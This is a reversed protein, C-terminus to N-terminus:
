LCLEAAKEIRGWRDEQVKRLSTFATRCPVIGSAIIKGTTPDTLTYSAVLGGSIRMPDAGLYTWLNKTTVSSGGSFDAHVTAVVANGEFLATYRAVKYLPMTNDKAMTTLQKVLTQALKIEEQLAKWLAERAPPLTKGDPVGKKQELAGSLALQLSAFDQLLPNSNDVILLADARRADTLKSAVARMLMADTASLKIASVSTESSLLSAAASIAPIILDASTVATNGGPRAKSDDTWGALRLELQARRQEILGHTMLADGWSQTEDGALLVIPRPPSQLVTSGSSDFGAAPLGGPTEGEDRSESVIAKTLELPPPSRTEVVQTGSVRRPRIAAELSAAIKEAAANIAASGLLMAEMEGANTGTLETKSVFEPLGLAAFRQDLLAKESAVTNKEADLLNKQAELLAKEQELLKVEAELAAIRAPDGASQALASSSALLLALAISNRVSQAFFNSAIIDIGGRFAQSNVQLVSAVM